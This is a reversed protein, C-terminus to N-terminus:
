RFVARYFRTSLDANPSDSFEFSGGTESAVVSTIEIWNVLDDSTEVHYTIGPTGRWIGHVAGGLGFGFSISQAPEPMVFSTEPAFSSGAFATDV